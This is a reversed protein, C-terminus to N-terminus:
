FRFYENKVSKMRQEMLKHQWSKVVVVGLKNNNNNILELHGDTSEGTLVMGVGGEINKWEWNRQVGAVDKFLSQYIMEEEETMNLKSSSKQKFLSM